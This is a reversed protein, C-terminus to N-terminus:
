SVDRCRVERLKRIYDVLGIVSPLGPVAFNSAVIKAVDYTIGLVGKLLDAGQKTQMANEATQQRRLRPEKWSNPFAPNVPPLSSLTSPASQLGDNSPDAQKIHKGDGATKQRQFWSRQSSGPRPPFVPKVRPLPKLAGNLLDHKRQFWPVQSSGPQPPFAPDVPPQVLFSAPNRLHPLQTHTVNGATQQRYSRPGQSSGPRLPFATEGPSLSQTAFSAPPLGDNLREPLQTHEADGATQQRQLRPGWPPRPPPPFAEGGPPFPPVSSSAPHLGDILDSTASSPSQSRTRDVIGLDQRAEIPGRQPATPVPDVPTEKSNPSRYRFIGRIRGKASPEANGEAM